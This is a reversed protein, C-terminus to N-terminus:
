KHEITFNRGKQSISMKLKVEKSLKGSKNHTTTLRCNLGKNLVNYLDQYYRERTNLSKIDCIELIKFVHNDIGYKYFSKSLKIQTKSQSIKSYTKFRKEISVSQGIYVKGKPNTIKYIGISNSEM